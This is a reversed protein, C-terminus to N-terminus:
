HRTQSQQRYKAPTIGYKKKFVNQFYSQSSFCLYSSIESISKNTNALLSRAEELKSRIIFTGVSFGLEERFKNSIHSTSKGIHAAVDSVHLPQNTHNNIFAICAFLEDTCNEPLRAAGVRECFDLCMTLLLQYVSEVTQLRECKQCYIDILQYTQEIDLGGPIAGSKGVQTACGIFINKAQRLPNDALIGERLPQSGSSSTLFNILNKANGEKIYSLLQQEYYWTDHLSFTEKNEYSILSHLRAVEKFDDASSAELYDTAPIEKETLCFYLFLVRAVFQQYSLLPIHVLFRETSHLSTYPITNEIMHKHIIKDTVPINFVPGVSLYGQLNQLEIVGYFGQSGSSFFCPNTGTKEYHLFITEALVPFENDALASVSFIREREPNYFSIPIHSDAYFLKCFSRINTLM